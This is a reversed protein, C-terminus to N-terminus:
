AIWLGSGNGLMGVFSDRGIGYADGLGIFGFMWRRTDGERRSDGRFWVGLASPVGLNEIVNM